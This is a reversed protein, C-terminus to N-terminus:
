GHGVGTAVWGMCEIKTASIGVGLVTIFQGATLDTSQAIKGTTASAVYVIGATTTAGITIQSSTGQTPVWVTIPQGSAACGSMVIGIGSSGSSAGSQVATGNALIKQWLNASDLYVFDGQAAAYGANFAGVVNGGSALALSSATIVLNPM